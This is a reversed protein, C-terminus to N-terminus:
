PTGAAMAAASAAGPRVTSLKAPSPQKMIFPWSSAVAMWCSARTIKRTTLLPMYPVMRM